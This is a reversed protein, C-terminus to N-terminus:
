EPGVTWDTVHEHDGERREPWAVITELQPRTAFGTRTAALQLCELGDQALHRKISYRFGTDALNARMMRLLIASPVSGCSSGVVIRTPIPLAARHVAQSLGMRGDWGSYSTWYSEFHAVM